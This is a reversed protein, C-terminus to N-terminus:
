DDRLWGRVDDPIPTDSWDQVQEDSNELETLEREAAAREQEAQERRARQASVAADLSAIQERTRSLEAESSKLGERLEKAESRNESAQREASQWQWTTFALAAIAAAVVGALVRPGAIKSLLSIM